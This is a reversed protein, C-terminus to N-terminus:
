EPTSTGEHFPAFWTVLFSPITAILVFVFYGEYGLTDFLKAGLMGTLSFCLGMLATGIAYHATQYRGPALQQMMYIMHGVAGVGMWFKEFTIITGLIWHGEPRFYVMLLYAANPLNIAVCLWFLSKRLGWRSVILGGIVSGVAIGIFGVTGNLLGLTENDLGIGGESVPQKLFTQGIKDLFGQSTRYFFAFALMMAIGKKAAFTRITDLFTSMLEPLSDPAKEARSGTPLFVWHHLGLLGVVAALSFMTVQWAAPNDYGAAQLKGTVIVLIGAAVIPGLMWSGSQFGTFKAQRAGSLSTVYVGDSAIDMTAGVFGVVLFLGATIPLFNDATMFVGALALLGALLFQSTIVFFKKSRFMELFPAWLPKFAYPLMFASPYWAADEVSLGMDLYMVNTATGITQNVAGMCFYTTIVWLLPNRTITKDDSM